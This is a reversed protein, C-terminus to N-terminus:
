TFHQLTSCKYSWKLISYNNEVSGGCTLRAELLPLLSYCALWCAFYQVSCSLVCGDALRSILTHSCVPRHTEAQSGSGQVDRGTNESDCKQQKSTLILQEEHWCQHNICHCFYPWTTNTALYWHPDENQRNPAKSSLGLSYTHAGLRSTPHSFCTSHPYPRTISVPGQLTWCESDLPVQDPKVHPLTIGNCHTIRREWAWTPCERKSWHTHSSSGM